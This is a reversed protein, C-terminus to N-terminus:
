KQEFLVKGIFDDKGVLGFRSSDLSGAPDNGLILYADPPIVGRYDNIYLSLIKYGRDDLRYAEGKSNKLVEGNILINWYNGNQKLSIKDGPVGKVIKIIPNPNGAYRYEIIDGRKVDNCAYYNELVKIKAGEEILGSLSNGRVEAVKETTECNKSSPPQTQVGLNELSVQQTKLKNYNILNVVFLIGSIIILLIGIILIKREKNM